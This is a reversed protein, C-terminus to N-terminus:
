DKSVSTYLWYMVALFALPGLLEFGSFHPWWDKNGTLFIPVAVLIGVLAEGTILGSSM